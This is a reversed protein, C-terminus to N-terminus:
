EADATVEKAEKPAAAPKYAPAKHLSKTTIVTPTTASQAFAKVAYQAAAQALEQIGNEPLLVNGLDVTTEKVIEDSVEIKLYLKM